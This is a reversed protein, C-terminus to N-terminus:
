IRLAAGNLPVATEEKATRTVIMTRFRAVNDGDRLLSECLEDFETMDSPRVLLVVDVDGTVAYAQSVIPEAKARLLFASQRREDHRALEVEVIATLSPGIKTRDVIAVTKRIVGKAKLRRIRRLCSSPSLGVEDALAANTRAADAQLAELLRLDLRDM